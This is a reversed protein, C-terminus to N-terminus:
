KVHSPRASEDTPYRRAQGPPRAALPNAALPSPSPRACSLGPHHNDASGGSSPPDPSGKVGRGCRRLVTVPPGIDGPFADAFPRALLIFSDQM